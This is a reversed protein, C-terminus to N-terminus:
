SSRSGPRHRPARRPSRPQCFGARCITASTIVRAATRGDDIRDALRESRRDQGSRHVLLSVFVPRDATSTSASLSAATTPEFQAASGRECCSRGQVAGLRPQRSVLALASASSSRRRQRWSTSSRHRRRRRPQRQRRRRRPHCCWRHWRRRPCRLQRRRTPWAARRQHASGTATRGARGRVARSRDPQAASRADDVRDGPYSLRAQDSGRPSHRCGQPHRCEGYESGMGFGGSEGVLETRQCRIPTQDDPPRAPPWETSSAM